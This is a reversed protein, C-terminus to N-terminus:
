EKKLENLVLDKGRQVDDDRMARILKPGLMNILNIIAREGNDTLHRYEVHYSQYFYDKELIIQRIAGYLFLAIDQETSRPQQEDHM